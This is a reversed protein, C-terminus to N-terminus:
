LIYNTSHNSMHVLEEIIAEGKDKNYWIQLFKKFADDIKGNQNKYAIVMKTAMESRPGWQHLVNLAQDLIILKPISRTGNTLFQDMLEPNEDRLVIKLDIASTSIAIKNLIPITQAGDACWSELIVLWTQKKNINQFVSIAQKPITITKDLRRMRSANLKTFNIKQETQQIGTTKNEKVLSNIVLLYEDYSISKLVSKQIIEQIIM